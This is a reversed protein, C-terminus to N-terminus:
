PFERHLDLPVSATATFSKHGPLGIGALDALDATCTVTARVDGGPRFDHADISVTIGACSMGRDAFSRAAAQRGAAVAAAQNTTLSAARAAAFAADSAEGRAQVYRGGAAIIIIAAVLVPTLLLVEISM